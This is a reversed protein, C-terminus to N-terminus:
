CTLYHKSTSKVFMKLYHINKSEGLHQLFSKKGICPIYMEFEAKVFTLTAM